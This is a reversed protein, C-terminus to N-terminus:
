VQRSEDIRNTTEGSEIRRRARRYSWGGFQPSAKDYQTKRDCLQRFELYLKSEITAKRNINPALVIQRLRRADESLSLYNNGANWHSQSQKDPRLFALLSFLIASLISFLALWTTPLGADGISKAGVAASVIAGVCGLALQIRQWTEAAAFHGKATFTTNEELRNLETIAAGLDAQPPSTTSCPAQPEPQTMSTTENQIYNGTM